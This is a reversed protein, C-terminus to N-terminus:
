PQASATLHDSWPVQLNLMALWAVSKLFQTYYDEEPCQNIGSEEVGWESFELPTMGTCYIHSRRAKSDKLLKCGSICCSYYFWRSVNNKDKIDAGERILLTYVENHGYQSALLLATYEWQLTFIFSM